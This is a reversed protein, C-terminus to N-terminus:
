NLVRPRPRASPTATARTDDDALKLPKIPKLLHKVSSWMAQHTPSIRASYMGAEPVLLLETGAPLELAEVVSLPMELLWVLTQVPAEIQTGPDSYHFMPTAAVRNTQLTKLPMTRAALEGLQSKLAQLLAHLMSPQGQLGLCSVFRARTDQEDPTRLMVLQRQGEHYTYLVLAAAIQTSGAPLVEVRTGYLVSLVFNLSTQRVAILTRGLRQWTHWFITTLLKIKLVDRASIMIKLMPWVKRRSLRRGVDVPM